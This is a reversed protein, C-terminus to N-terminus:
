NGEKNGSFILSLLDILFSTKTGLYGSVWPPPGQSLEGCSGRPLWLSMNAPLGEFLESRFGNVHMRLGCALPMTPALVLILLSFPCMSSYIM